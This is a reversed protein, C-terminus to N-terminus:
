QSALASMVIIDSCALSSWQRYNEGCARLDATLAAGGGGGGELKKETSTAPPQHRDCPNVTM